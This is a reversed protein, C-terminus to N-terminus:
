KELDIQNVWKWDPKFSQDFTIFHSELLRICTDINLELNKVDLNTMEFTFTQDFTTKRNAITVQIKGKYQGVKWPFHKKFMDRFENYEKTAKIQTPDSHSQILNIHTQNTASYLKSYESHYKKTQFGVKKEVLTETPVKIAIAKQNKKYPISINEPMDLELLVEEFWEWHFQHTEKNEHILTLQIDKIFAEKNLASFAMNLNIIPGFSSFGIEIVKHNIIELKTKTLLGKIWIALPYTWALAGIIALIEITKM